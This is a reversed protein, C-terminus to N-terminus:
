EAREIAAHFERTVDPDTELNLSLTVSAPHEPSATAAIVELRAVEDSVLQTFERIQRLPAEVFRATLEVVEDYDSDANCNRLGGAWDMLGEYTWIIREAFHEIREANGHQGPAGFASEILLQDFIRDLAGIQRAVWHMERSLFQGIPEEVYRLRGSPLRLEHDQWKSELNLRGGLLAGAFLLYEWFRPRERIIREQEAAATPIELLAPGDSEAEAKELNEVLPYPIVDSPQAGARELALSLDSAVTEIGSSTRAGLRDALVPSRETIYGHDVNHWVPLIVKSGMQIERAALGALERQPWPKAFFEPSLVVIGFRAHALGADIRGSLSDGVTLRLEDIWVSWGLSTLAAALPRAVSDKDESAHSIFVDSEDSPASGTTVRSSLLRTRV